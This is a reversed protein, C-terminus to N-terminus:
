AHGGGAVGTAAARGARTGRWRRGRAGAGARRLDPKPWRARHLGPGIEELITATPRAWSLCAWRRSSRWARHIRRAAVQVDGARRLRRGGPLLGAPLLRQVVEPRRPGRRGARRRPPHAGGDRQPRAPHGLGPRGDRTGSRAHRRGGAAAARRLLLLLRRRGRSSRRAGPGGGTRRPRRRPVAGGRPGGGRQDAGHRGAGGPRRRSEAAEQVARVNGATNHDCIAIM